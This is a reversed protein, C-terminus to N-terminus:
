RNMVATFRALAQMLERPLFSDCAYDYLQALAAIVSDRVGSVNGHVENKM